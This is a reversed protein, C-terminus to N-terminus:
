QPHKALWARMEAIEKEQTEVVATALSRIEPDSGYELVIRAMDVAGEHHPIMARVFDVDPDGTFEIDMAKHMRANAQAYANSAPSEGAAPAQHEMHGQMHGGGMKGGDMNGEEMTSHDMQAFAAGAVLVSAAVLGLIPRIM